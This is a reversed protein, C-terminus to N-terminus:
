FLVVQTHLGVAVSHFAPSCASSIEICRLRDLESYGLYHQEAYFECLIIVVKQRVLTM